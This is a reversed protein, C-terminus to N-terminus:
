DEGSQYFTKWREWASQRTVGAGAAIYDWSHGQARLGDVATQIASDLEDRIELMRGLDVEDGDGVREGYRRVIRSVFAAFEATETHRKGM